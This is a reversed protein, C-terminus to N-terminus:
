VQGPSDPDLGAADHKVPKTRDHSRRRLTPRPMGPMYPRLVPLSPFRYRRLRMPMSGVRPDAPGPGHAFNQQDNNRSRPRYPRCAPRFSSWANNDASAANPWTSWWAASKGPLSPSSIGPLPKTTPTLAFAAAGPPTAGCANSSNWLLTQRGAPNHPKDGRRRPRPSPLPHTQPTRQNLGAEAPYGPPMRRAIPWDRNAPPRNMPRGAPIIASSPNMGASAPNVAPEPGSSRSKPPSCGRSHLATIAQRSDGPQAGHRRPPQLSPIAQGGNSLNLGTHAPNLM